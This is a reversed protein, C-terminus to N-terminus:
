EDDDDSIPVRAVIRTGQGPKSVIECDGGLLRAREVMSRLGFGDKRVQSRVFGVGFDQVELVVECEDRTLSIRVRDSGSYKRANAMAEQAIRYFAAEAKIPLRGFAPDCRFEIPIKWSAHQDILDEIAARLGSDDIVTPHLGRIVRRGDEIGTRLGAIAEDILSNDAKPFSLKHKELFMLAGTAYQILGDHFEYTIQQKEKEQVALLSRMLEQKAQMDLEAQKRDTIDEVIGILGTVEGSAGKLSSIAVLGWRVAGDAHVFRFEHPSVDEGTRLAHEVKAAEAPFDEPHVLNHWGFGLAEQETNGAQECWRKNVFFINAEADSQAIGIPANAALTRFREEAAHLEKAQRREETVDRASAFIQEADAGYVAKWSLDRYSGDRCLYRNEFQVTEHDDNTLMSAERITKEVDDPHVLEIYPRACLEAESWGLTKTWASNVRTFYGRRDAFCMLENSLEFFDLM